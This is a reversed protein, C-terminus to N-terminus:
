EFSVNGCDEMNRRTEGPNRAAHQEPLVLAADESTIDPLMDVKWDKVAIDLEPCHEEDLLLDMHRVAPPAQDPLMQAVDHSGADASGAGGPTTQQRNSPERALAPSYAIYSGPPSLAADDGDCGHPSTVQSDGPPNYQEFLCRVASEGEKPNVIDHLQPPVRAQEEQFADFVNHLTSEQERADINYENAEVEENIRCPSAAKLSLKSVAPRPGWIPDTSADRCGLGGVTDVDQRPNVRLPLAQLSLPSMARTRPTLGGPSWLQSPASSLHPYDYGHARHYIQPHRQKCHVRIEIAAEGEMHCCEKYFRDKDSMCKPEDHVPAASQATLGQLQNGDGASNCETVLRQGM